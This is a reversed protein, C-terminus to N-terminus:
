ACQGTEENIRQAAWVAQGLALGGDNPPIQRHWFPEHGLVRLQNIVGEILYRNQFCGGTLLVRREGVDQAVDCIAKILANHFAVAIQSIPRRKEMDELLAQVMPEWDLISPGDNQKRRIIEYSHELTEDGIAYELAMAAQGEFSSQHLLGTLSAIADFLRGASSTVPSNIEKNLMSGLLKREDHTFSEAHPIQKEIAESEGFIEFLISFAARRPEVVAKEGGPLRFPRLHAVRRTSTGNVVIFEGGWISGDDGYGTGDWVVGLVPGDLHNEAMCSAVHALHHQVPIVKAGLSRAVRTTYYDPHQDCAITIQEAPRMAILHDLSHHFVDRARVSHLDGVHPGIIVQSGITRAAVSKLHGGLAILEPMPYGTEIALPAYGRARRLMLDRGAVIRVVSDDVASVIPRDHALFLDAIRNLQNQAEDDDTIMPENAINGSTAVIPFNLEHMLLHHLPTYPLIAGIYPNGPAVFESLTHEDNVSRIRRRVLVIPAEKSTLLDRELISIQLYNEAKVLNPFMIAFPKDPRQKRHRLETVAESNRADALLQYGGLGKLAVIKGDRLADATALIAEYRVALPDGVQDHLSIQPGCAHCAIPQAHFRRNNPNSYETACVGCMDFRHMTTKARDYPLAEIISFRPGCHTCNTFPYRYRRDAPDMIEKLCDSCTAVDPPILTISSQTQISERIVFSPYGCLTREEMQVRDLRALPPLQAHLSNSFQSIVDSLGEIEVIVGEGSNAVWGKLGLSSALRYVYPRLGVGQVAGNLLLRRCQEDSAPSPVGM